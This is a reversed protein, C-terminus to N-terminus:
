AHAKKAVLTELRHSNLSHEATRDMQHATQIIETIQKENDIILQRQHGLLRDVQKLLGETSM